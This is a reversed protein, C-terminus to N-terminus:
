LRISDWGTIMNNPSCHPIVCQIFHCQRGSDKKNQERHDNKYKGLTQSSPITSYEKRDYARQLFTSYIAVVPKQGKSALGASFTVAHQEAIGVDFARDPMKEFLASLSSKKDAGIFSIEDGKAVLFGAPVM